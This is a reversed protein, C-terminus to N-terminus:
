KSGESEKYIPIIVVGYGEGSKVYNPKTDGLSVITYREVLDDNTPCEPAKPPYGLIIDGETTAWAETYTIDSQPQVSEQRYRQVARRAVRQLKGDPVPPSSRAFLERIKSRVLSMLLSPSQPM